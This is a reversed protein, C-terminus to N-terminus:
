DKFYKLNLKSILLSIMFFQIPLVSISYRPLIFFFSFISLTALYYILCFIFFEDKRKLYFFGIMTGLALFIKPLIHLLNYYGPYNSSFNFFAFSLFKKLYLLLYRSPDDKIFKIAQDKYLNDVKLDYDNSAELNEIKIKLEKNLELNINMNGEVGAYPNNGKWLDYGEAKAISISKFIIYNRILYPSVLILSIIISLFVKKYNIKKFLLFTISLLHFAFFEGRLLVLISTIISFIFLNSFNEKKILELLFYFYLVLLSLQFSSSSIIISSYINLPLMAYIFTSLYSIKKSFFKILIKYLFYISIISFFIQSLIVIETLFMNGFIIQIFYIFFPYAPPMFFNPVPTGNIIRTAFMKIGALNNGSLNKIIANWEDMLTQDAYLYMAVLRILIFFLFVLFLIKKPNEILIRKIM